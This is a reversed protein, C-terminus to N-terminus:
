ATESLDVVVAGAERDWKLGRSKAIRLVEAGLCALRYNLSTAANIAYEPSLLNLTVESDFAGCLEEFLSEMDGEDDEPLIFKYPADAFLEFTFPEPQPAEGEGGHHAEWDRDRATEVARDVQQEFNNM